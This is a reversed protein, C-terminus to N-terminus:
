EPFKLRLEKISNLLYPALPLLILKQKKLKISKM